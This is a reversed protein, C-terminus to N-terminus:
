KYMNHSSSESEAVLVGAMRQHGRASFLCLLFLLARSGFCPPTTADLPAAPPGLYQAQSVNIDPLLLARRHPPFFGLTTTLGSPLCAYNTERTTTNEPIYVM